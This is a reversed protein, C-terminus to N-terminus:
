APRESRASSPRRKAIAIGSRQSVASASRRIAMAGPWRPEDIFVLLHHRDSAFAKWATANLQSMRDIRSALTCIKSRPKAAISSDDSYARRSVSVTLKLLYDAIEALMMDVTAKVM